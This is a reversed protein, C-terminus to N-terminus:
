QHDQDTFTISLNQESNPKVVITQKKSGYREHWATLTYIGPPINKLTFSGDKGTVQFYPHALVAAYFKMWPHINCKVPIAIEERPFSREIPAAGPTLSENFGQRHASVAAVNHTAADSNTVRLSEGTMLAVVHPIFICGRQDIQVLTTARPFAYQSFDGKLYVVVNQLSGHDGLVVAEATAPSDHLKACSAVSAMDIAKMKPPTGGFKVIGTVTAASSPDVPKAAPNIAPTEDTESNEKKGCGVAVIALFAAAVLFSGLIEKRWPNKLPLHTSV